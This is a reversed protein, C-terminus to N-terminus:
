GWRKLRQVFDNTIATRRSIFKKGKRRSSGIRRCLLALHCKEARWYLWGLLSFRLSHWDRPFM